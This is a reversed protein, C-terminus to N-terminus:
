GTSSAPSEGPSEGPCVRLRERHTGRIPPPTSVEGTQEVCGLADPSANQPRIRTSQAIRANRAFFFGWCGPPLHQPSSTPSDIHTM